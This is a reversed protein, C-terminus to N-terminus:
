NPKGSSVGMLAETNQALTRVNGTQGTAKGLPVNRWKEASEASGFLHSEWERYKPRDEWTDACIGDVARRMMGIAKSEDGDCQILCEKFRSIGKAMRKPTLQYTKPNRGTKELYYAFIGHVPHPAVPADAGDGMTNNKHLDLDTAAQQPQATASSSTQQLQALAKAFGGKRGAKAKADCATKAKLWVEHATDNVLFTCGDQEIERFMPLVADKVAEWEDPKCRIFQWFLDPENPIIGNEQLCQFDILERYAGRQALTMKAVRTSKRWRRPDFQYWRVEAM